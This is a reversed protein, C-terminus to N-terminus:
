SEVLLDHDDDDDAARLLLLLMLLLQLRLQWADAYTHSAISIIIRV